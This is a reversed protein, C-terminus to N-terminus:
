LNGGGEGRGERGRGGKANNDRPPPFVPDVVTFHDLDSGAHKIWIFTCHFFHQFLMKVNTYYLPLLNIQFSPDSKNSLYYNEVLIWGM